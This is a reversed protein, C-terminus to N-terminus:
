FVGPAHGSSPASSDPARRQHSPPPHATSLSYPPPRRCRKQAIAASETLHFVLRGGSTIAGHPLELSDYPADNLSVARVYPQASIDGDTEITFDGEPMHLTARPFRPAGLVYAPHGVTLPFIGLTSLVYWASMEGNDEDGPLYHPTYLEDVIRRVWHQTRDPRGACTYLYLVHHVPQNSHAYQGFDAAAMETMEHIETPYNGVEFIPPLSLMQDLKAVFPARGGMLEILGAADHPVAWTHQWASGEIYDASWEFERFPTRWSGDANRGRLFGTDSDFLNRYNFALARFRAADKSHGLEEALAALAADSYAYDTTRAVAHEVRDSPVFGLELYDSLGNRGYANSFPDRLANQRVAAYATEVDFNRIGKAYADAIVINSHSGVMCDRYGPSAWNPLWGGERYVNNWGEIMDALLDPAILTLLPMLTRHVDWFGIDTYLPGPHVKGSFPSFHVREDRENREHWMRPFLLCRYLCSYFTRRQHDSAGEISIVALKENWIRRAADAVAAVPRRGIERELNLAAQQDSIFSTGIRVTVRGNAPRRIKLWLWAGSETQASSPSGAELIETDVDAVFYAGFNVPVGGSHATSVGHVRRQDRDLRLEDGRGLKFALWADRDGRFTFQFCGGRETPALEVEIGFRHLVTRFRHPRSETQDHRALSSTDAYSLPPQDGATAMVMFQGYDAMWPSPQHTARFAQLKPSRLDYVWRGEDTQPTWAVMAHPLVTLPLTNGTSFAAHSDTGQLPNVWDVLDAAAASPPPPASTSPLSSAHEELFPSKM